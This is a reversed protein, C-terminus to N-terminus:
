DGHKRVLENFDDLLKLYAMALVQRCKDKAADPRDEAAFRLQQETIAGSYNMDRMAEVIKLSDLLTLVRECWVVRDDQEIDHLAMISEARERWEDRQEKTVELM